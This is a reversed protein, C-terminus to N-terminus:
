GTAHPRRAQGDIPILRFLRLDVAGAEIWQKTSWCVGQRRHDSDHRPFGMTLPIWQRRDRGTSVLEVGSRISAALSDLIARTPLNTGTSRKRRCARPTRCCSRRHRRPPSRRPLPRGRLRLCRELPRPRPCSRRRFPRRPHTLHRLLSPGRRHHPRVLRSLRNSRRYGLHMGTHPRLVVLRGPRCSWRSGGRPCAEAEPCTDTRVSTHDSSRRSRRVPQSVTRGVAGAFCPQRATPPATACARTPFCSSPMRM